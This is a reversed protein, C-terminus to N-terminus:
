FCGGSTNQFFLTRIFKALKVNFSRHQLRMEPRFAQLKISFHSWGLHKRKFIKFMSLVGTKFFMQSRSIRSCTDLDKSFTLCCRSIFEVGLDTHQNHQLSFFTKCHVLANLSFTAYNVTKKKRNKQYYCTYGFAEM